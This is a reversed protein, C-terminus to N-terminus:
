GLRRPVNWPPQRPARPGRHLRWLLYAAGLVAVVRSIRGASIWVESAYSGLTNHRGGLLLTAFAGMIVLVVPGVIGTWKDRLDWARSALALVAGLLWIPPYAAGGIGLLLLAIMELPNRRALVAVGDAFQWLRSVAPAGPAAPRGRRSERGNGPPASGVPRAHEIRFSSDKGAGPDGGVPGATSERGAPDRGQGGNKGAGHGGDSDEPSSWGGSVPADFFQRVGNAANNLGAGAAAQPSAAAAGAGTIRAHEGEVVAVPDGLGALVKKVQAASAGALGGCEMEIRTRTRDLLAQLDKLGLRRRAAVSMRNLYDRILQESPPNM